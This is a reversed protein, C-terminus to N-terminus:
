YHGTINKINKKGLYISKEIALSLMAPEIGAGGTKM